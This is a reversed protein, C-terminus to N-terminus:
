ACFRIDERGAHARGGAQAQRCGAEVAREQGPGRPGHARECATRSRATTALPKDSSLEAWYQEDTLNDWEM